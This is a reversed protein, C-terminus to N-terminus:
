KSVNTRHIWKNWRAPEAVLHFDASVFMKVLEAPWLKLSCYVWYVFIVYVKFVSTIRIFLYGPSSLFFHDKLPLSHAGRKSPKELILWFRKRIHRAHVITLLQQVSCFTPRNGNNYNASVRHRSVSSPGLSRFNNIVHAALTAM